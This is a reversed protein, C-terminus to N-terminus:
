VIMRVKLKDGNVIEDKKSLFEEMDWTGTYLPPLSVEAEISQSQEQTVSSFSSM